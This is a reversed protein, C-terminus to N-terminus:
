NICCKESIIPCPKTFSSAYKLPYRFQLNSKRQSPANLTHFKQQIRFRQRCGLTGQPFIPLGKGGLQMSSPLPFIKTEKAKTWNYTKFDLAAARSKNSSHKTARGRTDAHMFPHAPVEGLSSTTVSKYNHKVQLCVCPQLLAPLLGNETRHGLSQTFPSCTEWCFAEWQMNRAGWGNCM